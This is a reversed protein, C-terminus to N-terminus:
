ALEASELSRGLFQYFRWVPEEFTSLPGVSTYRSSAMRQMRQCMDLDEAVIVKSRSIHAEILPAAEPSEALQRSFLIHTRLRIRGPGLPLIQMQQTSVKRVSLRTYPFITTLRATNSNILDTLTGGEALEQGDARSVSYTVSFNETEPETFSLEAPYTAQLSKAHTGIHHYCEVSNELMMKWDIDWEGLESTHVTVMDALNYEALMDTLPQIRPALPSAKGDLNVFVFGNWVEFRVKRLGYAIPDFIESGDMLPARKCPGALDFSWSHYPCVLTKAQGCGAVVEMGRHPCLRSFVHLEGAGDRTMLLPEGVLDISLYSNPQAVQDGRGLILWGPRFLKEVELEYLARSNYAGIPIGVARRLPARGAKIIGDRLAPLDVM